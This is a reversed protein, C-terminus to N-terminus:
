KKEKRSKKRKATIKDRRIKEEESESLDVDGTVLSPKKQTKEKDWYRQDKMVNLDSPLDHTTIIKRENLPIKKTTTIIEKKPWEEEEAAGSLRPMEGTYEEEEEEEKQPENFTIIPDSKEKEDPIISGESDKKLKKKVM